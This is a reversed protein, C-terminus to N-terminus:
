GMMKRRIQKSVAPSAYIRARHRMFPRRDCWACPKLTLEVSQPARAARDDPDSGMGAPVIAFLVARIAEAPM